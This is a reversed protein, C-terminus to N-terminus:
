ALCAAVYVTGARRHWAPWRARFRPFLQFAGLILAVSAFGAHVILVGTRAFANSVINPPAAALGFVLYRLSSVGILAALAAAIWLWVGAKRMTVERDAVKAERLLEAWRQVADAGLRAARAGSTSRRRTTLRPCATRACSSPAWGGRSM